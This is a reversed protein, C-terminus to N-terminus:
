TTMRLRDFGSRATTQQQRCIESERCEAPMAILFRNTLGHRLIPRFIRRSRSRSPSVWAATACRHPKDGLVMLEMSSPLCGLMDVSLRHSTAPPRPTLAEFSQTPQQRCRRVAEHREEVVEFNTRYISAFPQHFTPRPTNPM